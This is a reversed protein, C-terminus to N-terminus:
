QESVNDSSATEEAPKSSAVPQGIEEHKTFEILALPANDGIRPRGLKLVRTYGGPTDRYLPAIEDFLRKVLIHDGLAKYALRRSHLDDRRALTVLKEVVGRLEKAKAETTQIRGHTIMAMAMNRFMAKRHSPTRNFKRGSKRHRM